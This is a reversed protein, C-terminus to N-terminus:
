CGGGEGLEGEFDYGCIAGALVRYGPLSCARVQALVEQRASEDQATSGPIWRAVTAHCLSDTQSAIDTEFQAIRSAWLAQTGPPTTLGPACLSISTSVHSPYLMAYRLALVGGISCGIIAKLRKRANANGGEQNDRSGSEHAHNPTFYLVMAHMHRAIDDITYARSSDEPPPTLNHGIHDFRITRHNTKHLFSVTSDWMHLNSMLAHTLLVLSGTPPGRSQIHYTIGDILLHHTPM